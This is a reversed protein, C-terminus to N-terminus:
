MEAEPGTTLACDNAFLLEGITAHQSKTKAKLGNLNFVSGGDFRFKTNLVEVGERYADKIM